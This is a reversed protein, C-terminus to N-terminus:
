RSGVLEWDDLLRVRKITGNPYYTQELGGQRVQQAGWRRVLDKSRGEEELCCSPDGDSERPDAGSETFVRWGVSQSKAAYTLPCIKGPTPM